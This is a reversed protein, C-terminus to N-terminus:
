SSGSPLDTEFNKESRSAEQLGRTLDADNNGDQRLPLQSFMPAPYKNQVLERLVERRSVSRFVITGPKVLPEQKTQTYVATAIKVRKSCVLFYLAGLKRRSAMFLLEFLDHAHARNLSNELSSEM